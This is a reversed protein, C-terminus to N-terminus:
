EEPKEFINRLYEALYEAAEYPNRSFRRRNEYAEESFMNEVTRKDDIVVVISDSSRAEHAWIYKNVWKNNKDKGTAVLMFGQERCNCFTELWFNIDSLEDGIQYSLIEFVMNSAILSSTKNFM